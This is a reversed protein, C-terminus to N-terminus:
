FFYVLYYPYGATGMCVVSIALLVGFGFKKRTSAAVRLSTIAFLAISMWAIAHTANPFRMTETVKYSSSVVLTALISAILGLGIRRLILFLGVSLISVAFITYRQEDLPGWHNQLWAIPLIVLNGPYLAQTFPNLVFSFGAGEQPMWLPIHGHALNALLYPKYVYYLQDFDNGIRLFGGHIWFALRFHFFFPWVTVLVVSGIRSSRTRM